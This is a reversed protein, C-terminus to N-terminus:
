PFIFLLEQRPHRPSRKQLRPQPVPVPKRKAPQQVQQEEERGLEPIRRANEAARDSCIYQELCEKSDVSGRTKPGEPGPGPDM